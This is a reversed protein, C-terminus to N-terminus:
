KCRTGKASKLSLHHLFLCIFLILNKLRLDKEPSEQGTEDNYKKVNKVKLWTERLVSNMLIDWYSVFSFYESFDIKKDKKSSKEQYKCCILIRNINYM